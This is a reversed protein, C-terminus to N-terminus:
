QYSWFTWQQGNFTCLMKNTPDYVIMGASPNIINLHPNTVKPLVIVKTTSELVVAGAATTTKAGIITKKSADNAAAPVPVKAPAPKTAAKTLDIYTSGNYYKMMYNSSADFYLTGAVPTVLSAAAIWPVILGKNQNSFELLVNPNNQTPSTKIGVMTHDQAQLNIGMGLSLLVFLIIQKKM